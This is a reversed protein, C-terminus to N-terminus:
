VWRWGRELQDRIKADCKREMEDPWGLLVLDCGSGMLLWVEWGSFNAHTVCLVEILFLCSFSFVWRILIPLFIVIRVCVPKAATESNIREFRVRLSSQASPPRTHRSKTGARAARDERAREGFLARSLTHKERSTDSLTQAPFNQARARRVTPLKRIISLLLKTFTNKDTKKYKENCM